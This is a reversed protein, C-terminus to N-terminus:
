NNPGYVPAGAQTVVVDVHDIQRALTPTVAGASNPGSPPIYVPPNTGNSISVYGFNYPDRTYVTTKAVKAQKPQALVFPVFDAM